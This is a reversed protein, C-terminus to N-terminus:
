KRYLLISYMVHVAGTKNNSPTSPSTNCHNYMTNQKTGSRRGSPSGSTLQNTCALPLCRRSGVPGATLRGPTGLETCAVEEPSSGRDVNTM